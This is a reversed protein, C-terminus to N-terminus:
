RWFVVKAALLAAAGVTVSTPIQVHGLVQNGAISAVIWLRVESRLEKLRLDLYERWPLRQEEQKKEETM